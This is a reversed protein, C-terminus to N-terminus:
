VFNGMDAQGSAVSKRYGIAHDLPTTRKAMAKEYEAKTMTHHYVAVVPKFKGTDENPKPKAKHSKGAM